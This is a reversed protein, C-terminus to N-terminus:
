PTTPSTPTPPTAQGPTVPQTPTGPANSPARRAPDTSNNPQTTPTQTQQRKRARDVNTTDRTADIKKTSGPNSKKTETKSMKKKGTRSTDTQASAVAFFLLASLTLLLRKM